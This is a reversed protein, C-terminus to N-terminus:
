NVNTIRNLAQTRMHALTLERQQKVEPCSQHFAHHNTSRTDNNLNNYSTCRYCEPTQPTKCQAHPHGIGCHKCRTPKNCKSLIHDFDGCNLCMQVNINLYSQVTIGNGVDLKISDKGSTLIKDFANQSCFVQIICYDDPLKSLIAHKIDNTTDFWDCNHEALTQKMLQEDIELKSNVWQFNDKVTQNSSKILKISSTSLPVMTVTYMQTIPQNNYQHSKVAALANSAHIKKKFKFLGTGARDAYDTVQIRLKSTAQMFIKKVDPMPELAKIPTMRLEYTIEEFNMSTATQPSQFTDSLKDNISSMDSLAKAFYEVTKSNVFNDMVVRQQEIPANEYLAQHKEFIQKMFALGENVVAAAKRVEKIINITCIPSENQQYLKSTSPINAQKSRIIDVEMSTAEHSIDENMTEELDISNKSNNIMKNRNKSASRTRKAKPDTESDMQSFPLQKIATQYSASISVVTLPPLLPPLRPRTSKTLIIGSRHRARQFSGDSTKRHCSKVSSSHSDQVALSKEERMVFFREFIELFFLHM